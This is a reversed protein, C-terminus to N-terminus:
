PCCYWGPNASIANIQQRVRPSLHELYDPQLTEARRFMGLVVDTKREINAYIFGHMLIVNSDDYFFVWMYFPNYDGFLNKTAQNLYVVKFNCQECLQKKAIARQTAEHYFPYTSSAPQAGWILGAVLIILVVISLFSIRKLAM